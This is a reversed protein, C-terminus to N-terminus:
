KEFIQHEKWRNKAGFFELTSICVNKAHKQVNLNKVWVSWKAFAIAEAHTIAKALYGLKLRRM